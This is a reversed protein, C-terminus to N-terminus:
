IENWTTATNKWMIAGNTLLTTPWIVMSRRQVSSTESRFVNIPLMFHRSPSDSRKFLHKSQDLVSHLTYCACILSYTHTKLDMNEESLWQHLHCKSVLLTIISYSTQKWWLTHASQWSIFRTVGCIVWLDGTVDTNVSSWTM